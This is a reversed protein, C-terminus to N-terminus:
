NKIYVKYKIILVNKVASQFGRGREQPFANRLGGGV